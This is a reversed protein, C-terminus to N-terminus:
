SLDKYPLYGTYRCGAGRGVKALGTLDGAALGSPSYRSLTTYMQQHSDSVHQLGMVHGLEHLLLNTRRLGGGFGGVTQALMQPTDIVVFGRQAALYYTTKGSVTRSAWAYTLGGQGLASGALSYNTRSPSTFAIIIEATQRVASGVQPVETTSGKYSFVISTAKSIRAVSTRTESLVTARLSTPVASLNVKYTIATQCGNWQVLPRSGNPLTASYTLRYAATAGAARQPVAAIVGLVAVGCTLAATLPAFPKRV